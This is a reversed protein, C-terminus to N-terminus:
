VLVIADIVNGTEIHIKSLYTKDDEPGVAISKNNYVLVDDKNLKGSDFRNCLPSAFFTTLVKQRLHEINSGFEPEPNGEFDEPSFEFHYKVFQPLKFILLALENLKKWNLVNYASRQKLEYYEKVDALSDKNAVNVRVYVHACHIPVETFIDKAHYEWLDLYIGSWYITEYTFLVIFLVLLSESIVRSIPNQILDQLFWHSRMFNMFWDDFARAYSWVLDTANDVFPFSEAM